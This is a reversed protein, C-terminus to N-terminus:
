AIVVQKLYLYIIKSLFIKEKEIPLKLYINNDKSQYLQKIINFIEYITLVILLIFFVTKLYVDPLRLRSFTQTLLLLIYGFVGLILATLIALLVYGIINKANINTVRPKSRKFHNRVLIKIM